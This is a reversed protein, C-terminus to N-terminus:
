WNSAEYTLYLDDGHPWDGYAYYSDLNISNSKVHMAMLLINSRKACKPFTQGVSATSGINRCFAVINKVSRIRYPLAVWMSTQIRLADDNNTAANSVTTCGFKVKTLKRFSNQTLTTNNEAITGSVREYVTAGSGTEGWLDVTCASSATSNTSTDVLRIILRAAYSPAALSSTWTAGYNSGTGSADMVTQMLVNAEGTIATVNGPRVVKRVFLEESRITKSFSSPPSGAFATAVSSVGLAVLLAIFRKM